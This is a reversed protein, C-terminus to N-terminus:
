VENVRIANASRRAIGDRMLRLRKIAVASSSYEVFRSHRSPVRFLFAVARCVRIRIFIAAPPAALHSLRTQKRNEMLRARDAFKDRLSYIPERRTVLACLRANRRVTANREISTDQARARM